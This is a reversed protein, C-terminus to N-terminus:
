LVVGHIQNSAAICQPCWCLPAHRPGAVKVPGQLRATYLRRCSTCPGTQDQHSAECLPDPPIM